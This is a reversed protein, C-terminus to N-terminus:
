VNDQAIKTAALVLGIMIAILFRFQSAIYGFILNFMMVIFFAHLGNQYMEGIGTFKKIKVLLFGTSVIIMTFCILGIMGEEAAVQLFTNHPQLLFIKEAALGEIMGERMFFHPFNLSGVGFLPHRTFAEIAIKYLALREVNSASKAKFITTTWYSFLNRIAPISLMAIACLVLIFAFKIGNSKHHITSFYLICALTALWAGRSFSLIVSIFCVLLLLRSLWKNTNGYFPLVLGLALASEYSPFVRFSLITKEGSMILYGVNLIATFACIFLFWYVLRFQSLNNVYLFILFVIMFVEIWKFTARLVLSPEIANLASLLIACIYIIISGLVTTMAYPYVMKLSSGHFATRLVVATMLFILFPIELIHFYTEGFHILM